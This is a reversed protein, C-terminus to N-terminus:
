NNQTPHSRTWNTRRDSKPRNYWGRIISSSLHPALLPILPLSFRFVLLFGAEAGRQEGCIGCSRVWSRARTEATPLRRSIAQGVVVVVVVGHSEKVLLSYRGLSRRKDAFNSGVKPM